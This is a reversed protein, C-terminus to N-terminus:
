RDATHPSRGDGRHHGPPSSHSIGSTSTPSWGRRPRAAAIVLSLRPPQDQRDVPGQRHIIGRRRATPRANGATTSDTVQTLGHPQQAAKLPDGSTFPHTDREDVLRRLQVTTSTPVVGSTVGQIEHGREFRTLIPDHVGLDHGVVRALVHIAGHRQDVGRPWTRSLTLEAHEHLAQRLNADSPSLRRRAPLPHGSRVPLAHGACPCRGWRHPQHM